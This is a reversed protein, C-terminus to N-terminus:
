YEFRCIKETSESTVFDRPWVDYINKGFNAQHGAARYAAAIISSCFLPEKMEEIAKPDIPKDKFFPKLKRSFLRDWFSMFVQSGAYPMGIRLRFYKQIKACQEPTLDPVRILIAEDLHKIYSRLSAKTLVNKVAKVGYGSITNKDLVLKSSSFPSGQFSTMVKARFAKAKSKQLHKRPTYVVLIDCPQVKDIMEQRTCKPTNNLVRKVAPSMIYTAETCTIQGELLLDIAIDNQISM